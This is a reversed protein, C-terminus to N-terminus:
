LSQDDHNDRLGNGQFNQKAISRALAPLILVACSAFGLLFHMMRAEKEACVLVGLFATRVRSAPLCVALDYTM